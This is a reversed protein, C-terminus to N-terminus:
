SLLELISCPPQPFRDLIVKNNIKVFVLQNDFFIEILSPPALWEPYSDCYTVQPIERNCWYVLIGDHFHAEIYPPKQYSWRPLGKVKEIKLLLKPNNLLLHHNM